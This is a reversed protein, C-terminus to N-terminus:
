HKIFQRTFLQQNSQATFIYMGPVLSEISIQNSGRRFQGSLVPRGTLDQISYRNVDTDINVNIWENAPNPFLQIRDDNIIELTSTPDAQWVIRPHREDIMATVSAFTVLTSTVDSDATLVLTFQDIDKALIEENFFDTIEFEIFNFLDANKVIQNTVIPILENAMYRDAYEIGDEYLEPVFNLTVPIELEDIMDANDPIPSFRTVFLRLKADGVSAQDFDSIDYGFYTQRNFFPGEGEPTNLDGYLDNKLEVSQGNIFISNKDQRMGGNKIPKLADDQFNVLIVDSATCGDENTVTVSFSNAGLMVEGGFSVEITSTTESTSWNYASFGAGPDLTLTVKDSIVTDQGLDPSPAPLISLNTNVIFTCSETSTTDAYSGAESYIVTDVGNFISLSTGECIATDITVTEDAIFFVNFKTISDAGCATLLSDFYIGSETIANTATNITEGACAVIQTEAFSPICDTVVALTPQLSIDNSVNSTFQVLADETPSSLKFTVANVDSNRIATNIFSTIDLEFLTAGEELIVSDLLAGGEPQNDYNLNGDIQNGDFATVYITAPVGRDLRTINLRLEATAVDQRLNLPFSAYGERNFGGSNRLYILSTNFTAQNQQVFGSGSSPISLEGIGDTDIFPAPGTESELSHFQVFANTTNSSLKIVLYRSGANQANTIAGLIDFTLETSNEDLQVSGLSDLVANAPQTSFSFDPITDSGIAFIDIDQPNALDARLSSIALNLTATTALNFESLDFTLYGERNFGNSRRLYIIGAESSGADNQQVYEDFVPTVETAMGVNSLGLFCLFFLALLNTSKKKM